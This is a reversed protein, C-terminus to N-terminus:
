KGGLLTYIILVLLTAFFLTFFVTFFSGIGRTKKKSVEVKLEKIEDELIKVKDDLNMKIM